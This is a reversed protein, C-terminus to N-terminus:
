KGRRHNKSWIVGVKKRREAEDRTDEGAAMFEILLVNLPTSLPAVIPHAAIRDPPAM